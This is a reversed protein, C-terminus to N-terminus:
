EITSSQLGFFACWAREVSGRIPLIIGFSTMTYWSSSLFVFSMYMRGSGSMISLRKGPLFIPSSDFSTLLEIRLIMSIAAFHFLGKNKKQEETRRPSIVISTGDTTMELPTDMTVNLLELIRKEIIVAVGNGHRGIGTREKTMIAAEKGIDEPTPDDLEQNALFEQVLVEGPVEWGPFVGAEADVVANADEVLGGLLTEGLVDCAWWDGQPLDAVLRELPTHWEVGCVRLVELLVEAHLDSARATNAFLVTKSFQM